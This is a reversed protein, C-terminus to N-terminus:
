WFLNVNGYFDIKLNNVLFLVYDFFVFILFWGFSRWWSCRSLSRRRGGRWKPLDEDVAAVYDINEEEEENGDSESGESKEESGDSESGESKEESGDSKKSIYKLLEESSRSDYCFSSEVGDPRYYELKM